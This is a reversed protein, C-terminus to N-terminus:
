EITSKVKHMWLPGIIANLEFGVFRLVSFMGVPDLPEHFVTTWSGLIGYSSRVGGVQIGECSSSIFFFPAVILSPRYTTSSHIGGSLKFAKV